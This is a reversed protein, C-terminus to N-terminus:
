LRNPNAYALIQFPRVWVEGGGYGVCSHDDMTSCKGPHQGGEFSGRCLFIARGDRERGGEVPQWGDVVVRQGHPYYMWKVLYPEDIPGCFVEYTNHTIEGGGYSISAGNNIHHGAKGLHLGGQHWTRASYLVSGDRENGIPLADPPLRQGPEVLKWTFLPRVNQPGPDGNLAGNDIYFRTRERAVQLWDDRSHKESWEKWVKEKVREEKQDTSYSWIGVGGVRFLSSGGVEKKLEDKNGVRRGEEYIALRRAADDALKSLGPAQGSTKENPYSSGSAPKEGIAPYQPAHTSGVAAQYSPVGSAQQSPTGYSPPPANYNSCSGNAGIPTWLHLNQTPAGSPEQGSTHTSECRWITGNYGVVAGAPYTIHSGWGPPQAFSNQPQQPQQQAVDTNIHPIRM